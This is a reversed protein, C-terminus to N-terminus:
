SYAKKREESHCAFFCQGKRIANIAWLTVPLHYAAQIINYMRFWAPSDSFFKDHYTAVHYNRLSVLV